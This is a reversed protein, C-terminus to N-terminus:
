MNIFVLFLNYLASIRQLNPLSCSCLLYLFYPILNIV